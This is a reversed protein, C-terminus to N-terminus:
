TDDHPEDRSGGLLWLVVGVLGVAIPWAVHLDAHRLLQSLILSAIVALGGIISLPGLSTNGVRYFRGDDRNMWARLKSWRGM